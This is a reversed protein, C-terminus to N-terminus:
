LSSSFVYKDKALKHNVAMDWNMLITIRNLFPVPIGSNLCL